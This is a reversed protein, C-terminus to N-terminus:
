EVSALSIPGMQQQRGVLNAHTSSASSNAWLLKNNSNLM